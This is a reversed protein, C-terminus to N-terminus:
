RRLDFGLAHRIQISYFEDVQALIDEVEDRSLPRLVDASFDPRWNALLHSQRDPPLMPFVATRMEPQLWTFLKLLNDEPVGIVIGIVEDAPYSAIVGALKIPRLADCISKRLGDNVLRLVDSQVKQDWRDFLDLAAELNLSDMVQARVRPEMIEILSARIWAQLRGMLEVQEEEPYYRIVETAKNPPLKPFVSMRQGMDWNRAIQELNESSISSVYKRVLPMRLHVLLSSQKSPPMMRMLNFAAWGMKNLVAAQFKEPWLELVDLGKNARLRLLEVAALDPTQKGLFRAVTPPALFPLLLRYLLNLSCVM